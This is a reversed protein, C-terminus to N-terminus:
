RQKKAAAAYMNRVKARLETPKLVRVQDAYGCIWWAIERLGDVRFRMRCRGDSFIEHRQSEHWRVESVNTAVLPSFELEVDYLKDERIMQWAQGLKDAARYAPPKDFRVNLAELDGIRVLKLMRDEEHRHSYGIVYWARSCFHLVYPDFRFTDAGDTPSTYSVRCARGEDICRQLLTYHRSEGDGDAQAPHQISVRDMVEACASRIPEPVTSALKSIASLAPGLLPRKRQAAAGKALLMLGLVEPVTLNIPPLYYSAAIRYGTAPDHYYPVGAHELANLDRFLTRRSVGLEATLDAVSKARGSQLLTVLQLLRPLRGSTKSM